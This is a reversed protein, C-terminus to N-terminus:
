ANHEEKPQKKDKKLEELVALAWGAPVFIREPRLLLIDICPVSCFCHKSALNKQTWGDKYQSFNYQAPIISAEKFLPHVELIHVGKNVKKFPLNAFALLFNKPKREAIEALELINVWGWTKAFGLDGYVLNDFNYIAPKAKKLRNFAM